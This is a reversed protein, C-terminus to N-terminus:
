IGGGGAERRWGGAEDLQRRQVPGLLLDRVHDAPERAHAAPKRRDLGVRGDLPGLFFGAELEMLQLAAGQAAGERVLEGDEGAPRARAFGGDEARQDVDEAGLLHAHMEGRGGAAGGLAERLGGAAERGGNM